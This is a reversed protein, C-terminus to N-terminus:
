FTTSIYKGRFDLSIQYRGRDIWLQAPVIKWVVKAPFSLLRPFDIIRHRLGVSPFVKWIRFPVFVKGEMWLCCCQFAKYPPFRHSSFIRSFLRFFAFLNSGFVMPGRVYFESLVSVDFKKEFFCIKLKAAVSFKILCNLCLTWHNRKTAFTNSNTEFVIWDFSFSVKSLRRNKEVDFSFKWRCFPNRKKRRPFNNIEAVCHLRFTIPEFVNLM